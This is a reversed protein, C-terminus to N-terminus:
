HVVILKGVVSTRANPLWPDESEASIRFIYVGNPLPRGDADKGDWPYACFGAPYSVAPLRRLLRGSSSFIQISVKAQANLEYTFEASSSVPNPYVLPDSIELRRAFTTYLNFEYKSLNRMNDVAFVELKNEEDSLFVPLTAMGKSAVENGELHYKFYPALDVPDGGNIVLSFPHTGALGTGSLGTLNIGSPDELEVSLDFSGLVTDGDALEMGNAYLTVSPGTRDDSDGSGQTVRISDAVYTYISDGDACIVHWFAYNGTATDLPVIFRLTKEDGELEGRARYYLNGKYKYSQNYVPETKTIWSGFASASWSGSSFSATFIIQATDGTIFEDVSATLTGQTPFFLTVAPDGFLVYLRMTNLDYSGLSPYISFFLEGITPDKMARFNSALTDAISENPDAGTGKTAAMTGIAGQESRALEEAVCEWRTDEFRGVGCSCFLAFPMRNDNQVLPVDTNMFVKEHTLQDGKGHGFFFWLLAGQNLGALLAKEADPKRGGELSYDSLYVKVADFEPSLFRSLWECASIHNSIEDKDSPTGKYFDDALLLVRAAWEERQVSEYRKIKDLVTFAERADRATIRAISMDPLYDLSDLNVFWSDDTFGGGTYVNPDLVYGQTHVLFYDPRGSYKLKNRYDYTGDGLILVYFPRGGGKAYAWSLFHRIAQPEALGYGFDRVIDAVDVAKTKPTTQGPIKLNEGRYDAFAQAAEMNTSTSLVLYDVSWDDRWLSGPEVKELEPAILHREDCVWVPVHNSVRPSMRLKGNEVEWDSLIVPRTPESLDFLFATSRLNHFLYTRTGDLQVWFQGLNFSLEREGAIRIWDPYFDQQGAGFVEVVLPLEDSITIDPSVAKYDSNSIVGSPVSQEYLITDGGVLARFGAGSTAAYARLTLTDIQVLGKIDLLFTDAATTTTKHIARWLWLLGSRGPCERDDEFHLITPATKLPEVESPYAARSAARKGVKGGWTLWYVNEEIYPNVEFRRESFNWHNAGRGFFVIYDYRNFVADEEGHVYISWESLTDPIPEEPVREGVYMLKLTRPDIERPNVGLKRLDQYTIRYAGDEPVTVKVWNPSEAFPNSSAEPVEVRWSKCQEYNLLTLPYIREAPDPENSIITEQHPTDFSLNVTVGDYLTLTRTESRYRVPTVEIIAVRFDRWRTIHYAVPSLTDAWDFKPEPAPGIAPVNFTSLRAGKLERTKGLKYGLQVEGEPPLGLVFQYRPLAPGGAEGIAFAGSYLSILDIETHSSLIETGSPLDIRVEVGHSSTSTVYPQAILYAGFFLSLASIRKM